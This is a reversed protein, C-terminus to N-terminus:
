AGHEVTSVRARKGAERSSGNGASHFHERPCARSFTLSAQFLFVNGRVFFPSVRAKRYECFRLGKVFYLRESDGSRDAVLTVGNIHRSAPPMPMHLTHLKHM